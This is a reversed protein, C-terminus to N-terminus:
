SEGRLGLALAVAHDLHEFNFPKAIYALAGHALADSPAMLNTTGSVMIVPVRGVTARLQRLGEIGSMKPLLIDLLILDPRAKAAEALGEEATAVTVVAYGGKSQFYDHLVARIAPDDDVILVRIPVSSV